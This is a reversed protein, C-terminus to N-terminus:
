VVAVVDCKRMSLLEAGGDNVLATGGWSLQTRGDASSVKPRLRWVTSKELAIGRLSEYDSAASIIPGDDGAGRGSILLETKIGNKEAVRKAFDILEACSKGPMIFSLGADLVERQREILSQWSDPTRGLFIAQDEEAIQTGWIAGVESQILTAAKLRRGLPPHSSRARNSGDAMSSVITMPFYETGLELMRAMATAYLLAEDLGPRAALKLADIGAEAIATAKRLSAIEEASKVYRVLGVVDTADHFGAAPLREMIASFAGHNVVGDISTVHSFRGRTLGVVGIQAREMGAELLAEAMAEAWERSTQWPEAVWENRSGRDAIVIPERGDTPMIVASCRLQTLYRADIGNGLPVFICDFGARAGTTRVSNWRRDREQLSYDAWVFVTSGARTPAKYAM